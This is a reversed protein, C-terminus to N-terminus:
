SVPIIERTANRLDSTDFRILALESGDYAASFCYTRGIEDMWRGTLRSSEHAHGHLTLFPQRSEIFRRIAISGIHTDVPAHDIMKGHLDAHDLNSNYPPSHFLFITREVPANKALQELDDAITGERIEDILIPTTRIGSEPPVAGVDVFRSVDYREWDKLLFPSPPICAYGTVYLDNFSITKYHIYSLLGKKDAKEFYSEYVRPDDNGLIVFFRTKNKNEKHYRKIQTLISKSIFRGTDIILGPNNPLLDGGLFVADPTEKRVIEFLKKYRKTDGHLDSVFLCYM